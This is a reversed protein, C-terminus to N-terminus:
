ANNKRRKLSKLSALVGVLSVGGIIAIPLINDSTNPNKVETKVEETKTEEKIEQIGIYVVTDEEIAKTLDFKKTLKEDSFFGNLEFGEEKLESKLEEELEKLEEESFAFGKPVDISESVGESTFTLKVLEAVNETNIDNSINTVTGKRYNVEVIDTAKETLNGSQGASVNTVKGSLINLVAEKTVGLKEDDGEASAYANTVEAGDITIESNEMFGRNVAQLVNIKGGYINAVANDVHGNSGGSTVYSIEGTFTSNITLVVEKTYSIGEGGGYVIALDGGNITVIAKEVVTTAGLKDGAYWSTHCNAKSYSSAGGGQVGGTVKGGNITVSATKVYSKHLGGGFINRLTGGNMTINTSDLKESSEHSGGFVTSYENLAYEGGDWKVLAGSEGDKREEITVPTGNAFFQTGIKGDYNIQLDYTPEAAMVKPIFLAFAAVLFLLKKKM